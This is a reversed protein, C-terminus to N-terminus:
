RDAEAGPNVGAPGRLQEQLRQMLAMERQEFEEESLAGALLQAELAALQRKIEAPDNLQREVADHLAGAIWGVVSFPGTVPFALMRFLM